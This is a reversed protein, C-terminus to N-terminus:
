NKQHNHINISTDPQKGFILNSLTNTFEAIFRTIHYNAESHQIPLLGILWFLHTLKKTGRIYMSSIHPFPPVLWWDISSTSCALTGWTLEYNKQKTKPDDPKSQKRHVGIAKSPPNTPGGALSM